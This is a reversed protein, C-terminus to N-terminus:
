EVTQLNKKYAVVKIFFEVFSEKVLNKNMTFKSEVLAKEENPVVLGVLLMMVNKLKHLCCYMKDRNGFIIDKEVM